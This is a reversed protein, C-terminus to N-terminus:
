QPLRSAFDFILALSVGACTSAGKFPDFKELLECMDNATPKGFAPAM